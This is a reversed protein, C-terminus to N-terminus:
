YDAGDVSDVLLSRGRVPGVDCFADSILYGRMQSLLLDLSFHEDMEFPSARIFVREYGGNLLLSHERMVPLDEVVLGFDRRRDIIVQLHLLLM